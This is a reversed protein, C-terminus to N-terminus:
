KVRVFKGNRLEWEFRPEPYNVEDSFLRIVGDDKRDSIHLWDIWDAGADINDSIYTDTADIYEDGSRELIQIYWGIYTAPQEETTGDSTRNLIIEETGDGNLDYFDIDVAIGYGTVTPLFEQSGLFDQGNGYIITSYGSDESDDHGSIILDLYGDKDVDFLESTMNPRDIPILQEQVDFNGTGDNLLIAGGHHHIFPDVLVIDLNGDNNIDGSAISHWFSILETLRIETFGEGEENLLVIPYEGPFPPKDAGAGAFAIDPYGNNTFDGVIGKRGHILGDFTGSLEHDISLNGHVDGKFFQVKNRVEQGDFSADYDSNTHVLDMIGDQDYDLVVAELPM